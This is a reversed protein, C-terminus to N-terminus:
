GEFPRIAYPHAVIKFYSIHKEALSDISCMISQLLTLKLERVPQLELVKTVM